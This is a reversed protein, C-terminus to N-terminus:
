AASLRYHWAPGTAMISGYNEDIHGLIGAMASAPSELFTAHATVDGSNARATTLFEAVLDPIFDSTLAYDAIIETYSIGALGLLLAAIIGTRDKGATFNFLVTGDRCTAMRELIIRIADGRTEIATLYMALLPHAAEPV